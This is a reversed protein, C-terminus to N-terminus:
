RKKQESLAALIIERSYQESQVGGFGQVSKWDNLSNMEFM